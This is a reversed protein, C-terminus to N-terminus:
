RRKPPPTGNPEEGAKRKQGFGFAVKTRPTSAGDTPADVTSPAIRSFGARPAPSGTTSANGSGGASVPLPQPLTMFAEAGLAQPTGEKAAKKKNKGKETKTKTLPQADLFEAAQPVASSL